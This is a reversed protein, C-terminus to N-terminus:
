PKPKDELLFTFRDIRGEGGDAQITRTPNPMTITKTTGDYIALNSFAETFRYKRRATPQVVIHLNDIAECRKVDRVKLEEGGKEVILEITSRDSTLVVERNEMKFSRHIHLLSTALAFDFGQGTLRNEETAVVISGNGVLTEKKDDWTADAAEIKQVIVTSDTASFYHIEIGHLKQESGSRTGNRAMMKHTLKGADNFFPVSLGSLSIEAARTM